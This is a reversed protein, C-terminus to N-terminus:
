LCYEYNCRFFGPTTTAGDWTVKKTLYVESVFDEVKENPTSGLNDDSLYCQTDVESEGVEFLLAADRVNLTIKVPKATKAPPGGM